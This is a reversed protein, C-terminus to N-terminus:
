AEEAPYEIEALTAKITDWSAPPTWEVHVMKTAVDGSVTQVGPLESLENEIARVCGDCGINPVKFTKEQKQAENAM